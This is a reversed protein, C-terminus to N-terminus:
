KANQVGEADMLKLIHWALRGRWIQATDSSVVTVTDRENVSFRGIMDALEQRATAVDDPKAGQQDRCLRELTRVYRVDDVAARYGEWAVTPLPGDPSPYVFSGHAGPAERSRDAVLDDYMGKPAPWQYAWEM